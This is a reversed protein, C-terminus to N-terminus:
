VNLMSEYIADLNFDNLNLKSFMNKCDTMDVVTSYKNNTTGVVLQRQRSEVNIARTESVVESRFVIPENGLTENAISPNESIDKCSWDNKVFSYITKIFRIVHLLELIQGALKLDTVVYEDIFKELSKATSIVKQTTNSIHAKCERVKAILVREIFINMASGEYSKNLGLDFWDQKFWSPEVPLYNIRGQLEYKRLAGAEYKATAFQNGFLSGQEQRSNAIMSEQNFKEQEPDYLWTIPEGVYGASSGKFLNERAELERKASIYERNYQRAQASFARETNTQNQVPTSTTTNTFIYNNEVKVVQLDNIYAIMRQYDEYNVNQIRPADSAIQRTNNRDEEGFLFNRLDIAYLKNEHEVILTQEGAAYVTFAKFAEELGLTRGKDTMEQRVAALFESAMFREVFDNYSTALSGYNYNQYSLSAGENANLSTDRLYEIRRQLDRMLEKQEESSDGAVMDYYSGIRSIVKDITLFGKGLENAIKDISMLYTKIWKNFNTLSNIICDFFPNALRPINELVSVLGGVVGKILPGFLGTWSLRIKALDFSYKGFLTPLILQLAPLNKPCLGNEKISALFQCFPNFVNTPNMANRIQDILDRIQQLSKTLSFTWEIPPTLLELEIDILCDLCEEISFNTKWANEGTGITIRGDGGTLFNDFAKTIRKNKYVNAKYRFGEKQGARLELQPQSGKKFVNLDEATGSYPKGSEDQMAGTTAEQYYIDEEQSPNVQIEEFNEAVETVEELREEEETLAFVSSEFGAESVELTAEMNRLPSMYLVHANTDTPNDRISNILGREYAEILAVIHPYLSSDM